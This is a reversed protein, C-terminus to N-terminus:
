LIVGWDMTFDIRSLIASFTSAFGAILNSGLSISLPFDSSAESISIALILWSVGASVVLSMRSMVRCICVKALDKSKSDAARRRSRM